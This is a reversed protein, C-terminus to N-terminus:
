KGLLIQRYAAAKTENGGIIGFIVWRLLAGSRILIDAKLAFLRGWHKKVFYITQRAEYVLNGGGKGSAGGLHVISATPSYIVKFGLRKLRYCLDTDEVYMFIDEDFGGVQDYLKKPILMFAGTIWDPERYRRYWDPKPHVPKFLQGVLPLDDLFLQWTFIRWLNPFYGGTPQITGDANLLQCSYAGLDKIKKAEEVATKLANTTLFTDTNLFLLYKGRAIKAGRNNGRGFGINKRLPLLRIPQQRRFRRLASLSSDTSANDVVIIEFKLERTHEFISELCKITLTKTNYSVLIISLEPKM